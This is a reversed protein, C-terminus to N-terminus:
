RKQVQKLLRSRHGVPGLHETGDLRRRWGGHAARGRLVPFRIRSTAAVQEDPDAGAGGNQQYSQQNQDRHDVLDEAVDAGAEVTVLEAQVGM